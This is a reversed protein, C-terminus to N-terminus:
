HIRLWGAAYTSPECDGVWEIQVKVWLDGHRRQYTRGTVHINVALPPIYGGRNFRFDAGPWGEGIPEQVECRELRGTAYAKFDTDVEIVSDLQPAVESGYITAATSYKTAYPARTALM